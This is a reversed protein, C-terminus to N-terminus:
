PQPKVDPKGQPNEPPKEIEIRKGTTTDFVANRLFAQASWPPASGGLYQHFWELHATYYLAMEYWSPWHGSNSYVILRSPVRMKQLATFMQLGQTYPVRYDREGTIVLCPTKFNKVYNSPSFQEYVQSNWPQGKLDWEPFWLEETAGYFSRLDYIGMMSAIAKFRDTHGEFWNMMYGGFSWGMAGVHTTDVYPLRVLADTVKMLDDYVKGGWDGSIEATYEQGFGTSGHPNAFAVIYGAGPYVQWDGRFSDVWESQPGGHVNLILPYRKSADFGHPKVIFVQVGAITTVEAPRIDVERRLDDNLHSLQTANKFIESPEGVSRHAFYITANDRAVEFADVTQQDLVKTITGSAVDLRYIPTRGEFEGTFFISKSDNGWRFDDVWNNFSQSVVRSTGSARDYLALLILSSEYRPQLQTRYAIYRGDPSYQPSNDYGHNSSTINRPTANPANLSVLWLDSNTSSQPDPDHNSAVALETSDPSFAYQLPGGLSFGPFDFHGPTVDRTEGSTTSAIWTHTVTGDKWQTWHRYLLSDATHAHLKGKSWRDSIKKNCADDGNCEPYVDTSFAIWKGDPSWLPDSVGTSVHTLQRPEGGNLPLLFINTDGDKERVFAIQKGDPSFHPSSDSDGQTLAHVNSGDVNMAWIRTSRTARPLDTTSVTYVLTREDPSLALDSIGKVRYLDELTFARKQQAFAAAAICVIFLCVARKM